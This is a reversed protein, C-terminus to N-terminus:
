RGPSALRRRIETEVRWIRDQGWTCFDSEHERGLLRYSPVGWLGLELLAARNTELEARWSEDRDLHASAEGWPLGAREVVSRLGADTGTDVGEAFAARTFALLLEAGRGRERAWPYLSFCREVPRGVPDCVRGFPVGADEAERKTDLVIYLQKARPVPLGRMVMPLVPRLIVDVPLRRGLDLTRQMAIYTYPSRLSPFFELVLRTESRPAPERSPDPRVVLLSEEAGARRAGCATLRRELYHLRDVGWYWEGGYYFTAGLYHGLRRRTDTGADVLVRTAAEGASAVGQAHRAVAERDDSWLASGVTVADAAFSGRAIAAALVRTALQVTEELPASAQAPFVLGYAPAVDAADKRSFADLRPRDPAAADSPPAVLHPVLEIEYRALMRELVQSALHSYPDDVQHFYHVRHPAHLLRRRMEAVRRRLDRTRPSTLAAMLHPALRRGVSRL